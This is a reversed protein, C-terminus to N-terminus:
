IVFIHELIIEALIAIAINMLQTSIMSMSHMKIVLRGNWTMATGNRAVRTPYVCDFMDIGRMVGEVLCDPTGVGMLYRAKNQPLHELTIDLMEYM